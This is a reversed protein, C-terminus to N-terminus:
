IKLFSKLERLEIRDDFIVARCAELAYEKNIKQTVYVYGRWKYANFSSAWQELKVFDNISMLTGDRGLVNKEGPTGYSVVSPFVFYIDFVDFDVPVNNKEYVEVLKDHISKRIELVDVFTNGEFRSMFGAIYRENSRTYYSIMNNIDADLMDLDYEPNSRIRDMLNELEKDKGQDNIIINQVISQSVELCRKPLTRNRINNALQELNINGYKPFPKKDGQEKSLSLLSAEDLNLFDTYTNILDLKLLAQSYDKIIDETILVKQHYYIYSFLMIKCFTLEEIATVGNAQIVLRNEIKGDISLAHVKIKTFLREIDFDLALGATYSDRKIYDLKDVDFSGNIISTQYSEITDNNTINVGIIIKGIDELLKDVNAKNPYNVATSFFSKFADSNVIILSLLEHPKPKVGLVEKVDKRLEAFDKLNGYISESLHSYFCHGVDHMIAALILKNKVAQNITFNECNLNIRDVLRKTAAAVGLTHEFRSHRAAPYTLVALGVQSINRLRQILPSDILQMEWESYETSGWIPDHITKAEIGNTSYEALKEQVFNNVDASIEIYSKKHKLEVM